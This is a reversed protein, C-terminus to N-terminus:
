MQCCSLGLYKLVSFMIRYYSRRLGSQLRPCCNPQIPNFVKFCFFPKIVIFPFLFLMYSSQVAWICYCSVFTVFLQVAWFLHSSYTFSYIRIYIPYSLSFNLALLIWWINSLIYRFVFYGERVTWPFIVSFGAIICNYSFYQQSPNQTFLRKGCTLHGNACRTLYAPSNRPGLLTLFLGMQM